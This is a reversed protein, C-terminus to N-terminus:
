GFFGYMEYIIKSIEARTICADPRFSGDEYGNIIGYASLLKINEYSWHSESVDTYECFVSVKHKKILSSIIKAAEARSVNKDPKFTNDGYGEVIQYLTLKDIDEKAWHEKLDSYERDISDNKEINLNLKESELLRSVITALEARTLSDEPAFYGDGKGYILGKEKINSIAQYAWHGESVDKFLMVESNGVLTDRVIVWIESEELGLKWSGIGKIDYKEVLAVKERISQENEYWFEYTGATLVEGNLKIREDAEKVIVRAVPSEKADDYTANSEYRELIENMQKLSVAKGGYSEGYKWYRGYFPIGLVIKEKPIKLIAYKLSDEVFDISAVPGAMGGEYHEDYAMIMIYDAYKALTAYDYSAHWGETFGYPNAAVSVVVSKASPLKERLLRVLKTYNERDPATVNEIDM